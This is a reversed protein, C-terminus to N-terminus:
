LQFNCFGTRPFSGIQCIRFIVRRSKAKVDPAYIQVTFKRIHCAACIIFLRYLPRYPVSDCATCCRCCKAWIRGAGCCLDYCEYPTGLTRRLRHNVIRKCVNFRRIVVVCCCHPGTLIMQNRSVLKISVGGTGPAFGHFIQPRQCSPRIRPVASECIGSLIGVCNSPGYLPSDGASGAIGGKRRVGGAGTRLNHRKQVAIHCSIFNRM